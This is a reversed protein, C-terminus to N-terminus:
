RPLQFTLPMFQSVNPSILVNSSDTQMLLRINEEQRMETELMVQRCGGCPSFNMVPMEANTVVAAEMIRENPRQAGASFFVVREACLGSPYAMNEQNSGSLIEGSELRIAAGVHFSSYPAYARKGADHAAQLLAQDSPSLAELPWEEVRFERSISRIMHAYTRLKEPFTASTGQL